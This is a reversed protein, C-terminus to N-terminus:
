DLFWSTPLVDVDSGPGWSYMENRRGIVSLVYSAASGLVMVRILQVWVNRKVLGVAQDFPGDSLCFLCCSKRVM